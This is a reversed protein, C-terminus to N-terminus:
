GTDEVLNDIEAPMMGPDFVTQGGASHDDILDESEPDIKRLMEEMEISADIGKGIQKLLQRYRKRPLRKM